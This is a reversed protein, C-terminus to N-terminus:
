ARAGEILSEVKAQEEERAKKLLSKFKIKRMKSNVPPLVTVNAANLGEKLKELNLHHPNYNAAAGTIISKNFYQLLDTANSVRSLLSDPLLHGSQAQIQTTFQFRLQLSSLDIHDLSSAKIKTLQTYTNKLLEEFEAPDQIKKKNLWHEIQFGQLREEISKGDYEKKIKGIFEIKELKKLQVKDNEADAIVEKIDKAKELSKEKAEQDKKHQFWEMFGLRQSSTHILRSQSRIQRTATSMLSM